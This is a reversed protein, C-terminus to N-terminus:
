VSAPCKGTVGHDLDQSIGVQDRRQALSVHQSQNQLLQDVDMLFQMKADQDFHKCPMTVYPNQLKAFTWLIRNSCCTGENRISDGSDRQFGDCRIRIKDECKMVTEWRLPTDCPCIEQIKSVAMGRLCSRFQGYMQNSCCKRKEAFTNWTPGNEAAAKEAATKEAAAAKEAATSVKSFFNKGAFPSSSTSTKLLCYPPVSEYNDVFGACAGNKACESACECASQYFIKPPLWYGEVGSGLTKTFGACTTQSSLAWVENQAKQASAAKKRKKAASRARAAKSSMSSGFGFECGDLCEQVNPFGCGGSCEGCNNQEIGGLKWDCTNDNTRCTAKCESVSGTHRAAQCGMACSPHKASSTAGTCCHGAKACSDECSAPFGFDCGDLCDQVEAFGCDSTACGPCGGCNNQPIGALNWDCTKTNKHCTAKCESVSGTHQSASCGMACSPHRASSTAGTCCYGAAKCKQECNPASPAAKKGKGGKGQHGMTKEINEGQTVQAETIQELTPTSVEVNGDVGIEAVAM